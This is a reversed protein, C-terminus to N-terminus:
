RSMVKAHMRQLQVSLGKRREIGDLVQNRMLHIIYRDLSKRSQSVLKDEKQSEIFSPQGEDPQMIDNWTALAIRIGTDWEVATKVMETNAIKISREATDDQDVDRSIKTSENSLERAEESLKEFDKLYYGRTIWRRHGIIGAIVCLLFALIGVFAFFVSSEYEQM